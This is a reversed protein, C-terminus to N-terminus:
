DTVTWLREFYGWLDLTLVDEGAPTKPQPQRFDDPTDRLWHMLGEHLESSYPAEVEYLCLYSLPAGALQHQPAYRTSARFHPSRAVDIMHNDTYWANYETDYGLDTPHSFVLM